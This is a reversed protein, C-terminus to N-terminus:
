QPKQQQLKKITEAARANNPNLELSKKYNEIALDTDGHNMYAEGLSDYANPSRPYAEVNLRFIKIAAELDRQTMLEYGLRNLDNEIRAYRNRRDALFGHLDRDARNWDHASVDRRLREEVSENSTYEEIAELATDRGQHYDLSSMDTAIRPAIWPRNDRPDQDQWWLTSVFVKLKSNPAEIPTNDGYSNPKGGTPEGVFTVNTFRELQNALNMAASFTQRGVITFFKGRQDLATHRIIGLLIPKNLFNDGGGNDRIDLVFRDVPSKDAVAFVRDFFTAITEDPKNMVANYQVYLTRTSPFYQFWYIDGPHSQWLPRRDVGPAADVWGEKGQYPKAKLIITSTRGNKEVTFQAEETSPSFGLGKMLEPITFIRPVRSMADMDNDRSVIPLAIQIAEDAMYSGIRVVRGGVVAAYRPDASRVFLGDSFLYLEIPFFSRGQVGHMGFPVTLEFVTHGDGVMAVLKAIEVEIQEATLNPIRDQLATVAADFASKPTSHYLNKHNRAMQEYLYRVDSKWQQPTLSPVGASHVRSVFISCVLCFALRVLLGFLMCKRERLTALCCAFTVKWTATPRYLNFRRESRRYDRARDNCLCTSKNVIRMRM